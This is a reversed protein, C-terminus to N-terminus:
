QEAPVPVYVRRVTVTGLFSSELKLNVVLSAPDGSTTFSETVKSGQRPKTEVLLQAADWSTKVETTSTESKYAHGDPHLTRLRGDKELIAIENPTETIALEKPAEFFDSMGGRDGSSGSGGDASSGGGRSGGGGHHGGGGGRGGWSGGGGPGADGSRRAAMADHVKQRADESQKEDLAWRGSLKAHEPGPIPAGNQAPVAAAAVIGILLPFLRDLQM